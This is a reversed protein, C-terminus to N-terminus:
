PHIALLNHLGEAAAAGVLPGRRPPKVETAARQQVVSRRRQPEFLVRANGLRHRSDVASEFRLVADDHLGLLLRKQLPLHRGVRAFHVEGGPADPAVLVAAVM